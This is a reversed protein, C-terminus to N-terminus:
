KIVDDSDKTALDFLDQEYEIQLCQDNAMQLEHLLYTNSLLTAITMPGVGGPVPTIYSCKPAVAEFDVDGVIGKETRNIGVDVVIAGDKVMDKSVYREKGIAVILIDATKSIEKLDQTKSHCITVTANRQELLNAVSKGVLLSRGIVVAKKGAIEINYEDLLKIIGMATCPAIDYTGAFLKGLSVDTLGDADKEPDIHNVIERECDRLGEPLPLQLLISSVNPDTNLKEIELIVDLKSATAPLKKVISEFGVAACAKEKSSVYTQSAPNDGVIICALCPVRKGEVVFMDQTKQKIQEKTKASLAKGDLIKM